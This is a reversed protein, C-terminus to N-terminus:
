LFRRHYTVEADALATFIISALYYTTLMCSISIVSAGSALEQAHLYLRDLSLEKFLQSVWVLMGLPEQTLTLCNFEQCKTASRLAIPVLALVIASLEAVKRYFM